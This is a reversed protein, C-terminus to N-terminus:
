PALTLTFNENLPTGAVLNVTKKQPTYGTKSATVEWQGVYLQGGFTYTGAATSTQNFLGRNITITVGALPANNNSADFV